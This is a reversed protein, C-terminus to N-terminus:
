SARSGKLLLLREREGEEREAAPRSRQEAKQDGGSSPPPAATLPSRDPNLPSPPNTQTNPRRPPNRGPSIYVRPRPPVGGARALWLSCGRLVHRGSLSGIWNVPRGPPPLFPFQFGLHARGSAPRCRSPSACAGGRPPRIGQAGSAQGGSRPMPMQTRAREATQFIGSDKPRVPSHCIPADPRDSCIPGNRHPAATVALETTSAPKSPRRGLPEHGFRVCWRHM